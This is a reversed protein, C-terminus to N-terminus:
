RGLAKRAAARQDQTLSWEYKQRQQDPPLAKYRDFNDLALQPNAVVWDDKLQTRARGMVEAVKSQNVLEEIKATVEGESKRQNPPRRLNAAEVEARLRAREAEQWDYFSEFDKLGAPAKPSDTLLKWAQSYMGDLQVDARLSGYEGRKVAASASEPYNSFGTVDFPASQPSVQGQATTQLIPPLPAVGAIRQAPTMGDGYGGRGDLNAFRYGEGPQYGIGIAKEGTQLAPSSSGIALKGWIKALEAPDAEAIARMSQLVANEVQDQPNLGVSINQGASNKLKTTIVGAGKKTQDWAYDGVGAYHNLALGIATRVAYKNLILVSGLIREEQTSGPLFVKAVQGIGQVQARRMSPTMLSATEALARRANLAQPAFSTAVNAFNASTARVTPDTIDKGLFKLIALNGEHDLNRLGGLTKEFQLKTNLDIWKNITRGVPGFNNLLGLGEGPQVVGTSVNVGLGDRAYQQLRAVGVAGDLMPDNFGTGMRNLVRNGFGILINTPGMESIAKWGQQGLVGYDLPGFALNKWEQSGAAMGRLATDLKGGYPASTKEIEAQLRAPIGGPYQAEIAAKQQAVADLTAQTTGGPREALMKDIADMERKLKLPVGGPYRARLQSEVLTDAVKKAIEPDTGSLELARTAVLRNQYLTNLYSDSLNGSLMASVEQLRQHTTEGIQERYQRAHRVWQEVTKVAERDVASSVGPQEGLLAKAEDILQQEDSTLKTSEVAARDAERAAKAQARVTAARQSAESAANGTATQRRLLEDAQNAYSDAQARAAEARKAFRPDGARVKAQAELRSAVEAQRQAQLELRRVGLEGQKEAAAVAARDADTLLADGAPVARLEQTGRLREATQAATEGARAEQLGQREAQRAGRAALEDTYARGQAMTLEDAKNAFELGKIRAQESLNRLRPDTPNLRYQELLDQALRQQAIARQEYTVIKTEGKLANAIAQRAEATMSATATPRGANAATAAKEFQPGFVRGLLKLQAPQVNRGSYLADLADLGNIRDWQSDKLSDVLHNGIAAKADATLELPPSFTRRLTGVKAGSRAARNLEDFSAGAKQAGAVNRAIGAAQASRGAAIENAIVGSRRLQTESALAYQIQPMAKALVPDRQMAEALPRYGGGPAAKDGFRATEIMRNLSDEWRKLTAIPLNESIGTARAEGRLDGNTVRARLGPDSRLSRATSVNRWEGELIDLADFADGKARELADAMSHGAMLDGIAQQERTNVARSVLTGDPNRPLAAIREEIQRALGATTNPRIDTSRLIDTELTLPPTDTVEGTIAQGIREGVGGPRVPPPPAAYEPVDNKFAGSLRELLSQQAAANEPTLGEAAIKAKLAAVEEAPNLPPIDSRQAASAADDAVDAGGRLTTGWTRRSFADDATSAPGAVARLTAADDLSNVARAGAGVGRAVAPGFVPVAISGAIDAIDQGQEGFGLEKAAGRAVPGGVAAAAAMRANLGLSGGTVVNLPSALEFGREAIPGVYPIAGLNEAIIDGSRRLQGDNDERRFGPVGEQGLQRSLFNGLNRGTEISKMAEGITPSDIMNDRSGMEFVGPISQPRRPPAFPGMPDLPGYEFASGQGEGLATPDDFEFQSAGFQGPGGEPTYPEPWSRQLSQVTSRPLQFAM